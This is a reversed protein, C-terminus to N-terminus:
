VFTFRMTTDIRKYAEYEAPNDARFWAADFKNSTIPKYTATHEKGIIERIGEDLMYQKLETELKALEAEAQKKIMRYEAIQKMKVNIDM